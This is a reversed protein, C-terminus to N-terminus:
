RSSFSMAIVSHEKLRLSQIDDPVTRVKEGDGASAGRQAGRASAWSTGRQALDSGRAGWEAIGATPARRIDASCLVDCMRHQTRTVLNSSIPRLKFSVEPAQTHPLETQAISAGCQARSISSRAGPFGLQYFCATKQFSPHAHM